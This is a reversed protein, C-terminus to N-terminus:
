PAKWTINGTAGYIGIGNGTKDAGLGVANRGQKDFVVVANGQELNNLGVMVKGQKDYVAVGSGNEDVVSLGRCTIEDFVGNSQAEIDPTGWQGIIIGVALLGVGLAMYGLKQLTNM